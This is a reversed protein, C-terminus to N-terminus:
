IKSFKFFEKKVYIAFDDFPAVRSGLTKSIIFTFNGAPEVFYVSVAYHVAKSNFLM